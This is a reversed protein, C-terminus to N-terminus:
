SEWDGRDGHDGGPAGSHGPMSVDTAVFSIISLVRCGRKDCERWM